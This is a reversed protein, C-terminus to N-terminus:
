NCLKAGLFAEFAKKGLVARCAVFASMMAGVVGPLWSSQGAAYLNLLPLKGVLNYQGLKQKIGYASGDPSHLYDRFTLMSASDLVRLRGKWSPNARVIRRCIREIRESKYEAYSAPRRGTLSDSWPAVHEAYSHEMAHLIRCPRGDVTETTTVLVLAGDGRLAPDHLAEFDVTPFLSVITSDFEGAAAGDVVAFVEFFGSSSEYGSVRDVFARSLHERPLVDLIAQPHITFICNRFPIDEGANLRLRGVRNHQIDLCQAVHHGCLVDVGLEELKYEFARIFAEGGDQVRTVSEYFGYAIRSHNAFSVESPKAGYCMGFAYLVGKLLENGTLRDVYDKLAITDADSVNTAASMRTLDTAASCRCVKDVGALYRDIAAREAPFDSHWRERVRELGCPMDFIREESEFIFRHAHGAALAVPQIAEAIGLVALMARLVGQAHLGGTFHFGTDFPIGQRRFRRLSGGMQRDKELLLVKHGNLAMLLAATMGSVGSGVVIDDYESM